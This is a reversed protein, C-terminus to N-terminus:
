LVIRDIWAYSCRGIELVEDTIILGNSYYELKLSALAINVSRAQMCSRSDERGDRRGWIFVSIKFYM